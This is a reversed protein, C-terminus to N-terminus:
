PKRGDIIEQVLQTTRPDKKRMLANLAQQRINVVTSNKVIDVLKDAAEPETRRDLQNVIQQRISLADSADYLKGLDAISVNGRLLRSIAQSRLQSSENPNKAISLVWADNEAGGMRAIAGIIAEKIRDNDARSYLGRLYAADDTTARDNNYSNIADIRLSLPADKRDILARMSNRAKANDSAVLTRVVARQIREDQETRLVDELAAVGAD